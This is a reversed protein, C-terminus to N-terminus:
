QSKALFLHTPICENFDYRPKCLLSLNPHPTAMLGSLADMLSELVWVSTVPSDTRSLWSQQRQHLRLDQCEWSTWLSPRDVLVYRWYLCLSALLWHADINPTISWFTSVASLYLSHTLSQLEHIGADLLFYREFHSMPLCCSVTLSARYRTCTQLFRPACILIFYEGYKANNHAQWTLCHWQWVSKLSTLAESSFALFFIYLDLWAGIFYFSNWGQFCFSSSYRSQCSPSGASHPALTMMTPWWTLQCALRTSSLMHRRLTQSCSAPRTSPSSQSTSRCRLYVWSRWSTWCSLMPRCCLHLLRPHM